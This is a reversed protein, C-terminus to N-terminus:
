QGDAAPHAIRQYGAPPAFIGPALPESSVDLARVEGSAGTGDVGNAALLLGDATVCATARGKSSSIQWDACSLGAITRTTGVRVYDAAPDLLFPDAVPGKSPIVMFARAANIVVTLTGTARDLVTDGQGDPGDVRLMNGGQGFYVTIRAPDQKQARVDYVIKSDHVPMAPPQDAAGAAPAFLVVAVLLTPRRVHHRMPLEKM